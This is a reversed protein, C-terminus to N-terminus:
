QTKFLKEGTVTIFTEFYVENEEDISVCSFYMKQKNLKELFVTKRDKERKTIIINIACFISRNWIMKKAGGSYDLFSYSLNGM